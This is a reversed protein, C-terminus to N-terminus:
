STQKQPKGFNRLSPFRGNPPTPKPRQRELTQPEARSTSPFDAIIKLKRRKFNRFKQKQFAKPPAKATPTEANRKLSRPNESRRFGRVAFFSVNSPFRRRRTALLGSPSKAGVKM